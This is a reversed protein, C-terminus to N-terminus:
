SNLDKRNQIEEIKENSSIYICYFKFIILSSSIWKNIHDM